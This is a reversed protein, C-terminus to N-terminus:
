SDRERAPRRVELRQDIVNEFRPDGGRILVFHREVTARYVALPGAPHLDRSDLAHRPPLKNNLVTLADTHLDADLVSASAHLYLAEAGGIMASSDFVTIAIASRVAINRSHRSEPSSVWFLERDDRAAFYVPTAWPAGDANATALVCYNNDGLLRPVTPWLDDGNAANNM